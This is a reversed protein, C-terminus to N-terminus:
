SIRRRVFYVYAGLAITQAGWTFVIGAVVGDWFPTM